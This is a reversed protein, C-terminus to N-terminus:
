KGAPRIELEQMKPTDINEITNSIDEDKKNNSDDFDGTKIGFRCTREEAVKPSLISLSTFPKDEDTVLPNETHLVELRHL